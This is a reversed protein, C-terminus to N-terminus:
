GKCARAVIVHFRSRGCFWGTSALRRDARETARIVATTLPFLPPWFNFPFEPILDPLVRLGRFEIIEFREAFLVHLDARSYLTRVWAGSAPRLMRLLYHPFLYVYRAYQALEDKNIIIGIFVGGPVLARHVESVAARMDPFNNPATSSVILDYSNDRVEMATADDVFYTVTEGPSSRRAVAIMESSFDSGHIEPTGGAARAAEAMWRALRGEGCGLDLVRRAGHLYPMIIERELRETYVQVPRARIKPYREAQRDYHAVTAFEYTM